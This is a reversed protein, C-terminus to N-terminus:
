YCGILNLNDIRFDFLDGNKFQVRRLENDDLEKNLHYAITEKLLKYKFTENDENYAFVFEM